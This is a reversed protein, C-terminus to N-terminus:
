RAGRPSRGSWSGSGRWGRGASTATACRRRGCCGGRAVKGDLAVARLDDAAPTGLLHAAWGALAAELTDADLRTFLARSAGIPAPALRAAIRTSSLNFLRNARADGPEPEVRFVQRCGEHQVGEEVLEDICRGPEFAPNPQLLPEPWLSGSDLERGVAEAIARGRIRNVSRMCDAYAAVLEGRLAFGDM